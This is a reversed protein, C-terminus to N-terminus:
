SRPAPHPRLKSYNNSYLINSKITCPAISLNHFIWLSIAFCFNFCHQPIFQPLPTKICAKLYFSLTRLIAPTTFQINHNETVLYWDTYNLTFRPTRTINTVPTPLLSPMSFLNVFVLSTKMDRNEKATAKISDLRDSIYNSFNVTLKIKMAQFNM